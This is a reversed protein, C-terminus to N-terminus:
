LYFSKFMHAHHFTVKKSCDGGIIAHPEVTFRMLQRHNNNNNSWLILYIKRSKKHTKLQFM